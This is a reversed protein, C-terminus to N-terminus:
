KAQEWIIQVSSGEGPTSKISVSANILAARERIGNLGYRGNPVEKVDFGVGDDRVSLQLQMPTNIKLELWFRSANAHRVINNVAEEAIRYLQQEVTAPVHMLQPPLTVSPTAETRRAAQQALRELALLLGFEEVPKARLDHLARRAAQLGNRTLSRTDALHQKAADPNQPILVDLAKLQMEVASLTHALTDHLERALRNRERTITLQELASAYDALQANREALEVQQQRISKTLQHIYYGAFLFITLWSAVGAVTPAIDLGYLEQQWAALGLALFSTGGVFALIVKVSYHTSVLVLAIIMWIYLQGAHLFEVSVGTSLATSPVANERLYLWNAAYVNVIPGASLAVLTLPIFGHAFWKQFNPIFLYILLLATFVTQLILLYDNPVRNPNNIFSLLGLITLVFIIGLTWRLLSLVRPEYYPRSLQIKTVSDDM